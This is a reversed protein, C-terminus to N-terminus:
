LYAIEVSYEYISNGIKVERKNKSNTHEGYTEEKSINLRYFEYSILMDIYASNDLKYNFSTISPLALYEEFTKM